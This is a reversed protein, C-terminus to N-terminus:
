YRYSLVKGSMYRSLKVPIAPNVARDKMQYTRRSKAFRIPLVEQKQSLEWLLMTVYYDKEIIDERIGTREGITSLLAQFADRDEHLRM